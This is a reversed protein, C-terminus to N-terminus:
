SISLAAPLSLGLAQACLALAPMVGPNLRIGARLQEERGVTSWSIGDLSLREGIPDGRPREGHGLRDRVSSLIASTEVRGVFLPDDMAM